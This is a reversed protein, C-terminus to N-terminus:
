KRIKIKITAKKGSGDTAKATITVTKGIGAKKATVVGKSNVTAYKTNSSTWEIKKNAKSGNTKVRAYVTIKKGAKVTKSKAQLTIKTVTHKMIRIKVKARVGSGDAAKATITVTKGAGGKKATVVGKNNVTAYKTNSSSWIIKKNAAKKPGVTAKLTLKKGAALSYKGPTITIKQVNVKRTTDDTKETDESADTDDQTETDGPTETSGSIETNGPTETNGPIETNGPTEANGPTETDKPKEVLASIAVNLNETAADIEDQTANENAAVEKAAVLVGALNKYSEETYDKANVKEAKEIQENLATKDVPAVAPTKDKVMVECVVNYNVGNIQTTGYIQYTGAEDAKIVKNLSADEWEVAEQTVTDDALTVSVTQPLTDKSLESVNEVAVPECSISKVAAADSVYIGNVQLVTIGIWGTGGNALVNIRMHRAETNEPFSDVYPEKAAADVGVAEESHDIVTTWNEGDESIDLTYKLKSWFGTKVNEINVDSGFDIAIAGAKTSSGTTWANNGPNLNMTRANILANKAPRVSNTETVKIGNTDYASTLDKTVTIKKQASIGRSESLATITATGEGVATVVGSNKDVVAVSFDDSTWVVKEEATAPTIEATLTTQKNVNLANDGGSIHIGTIFTNKELGKVANNLNEATKDLTNQKASDWKEEESKKLVSEAQELAEYYAALSEATYYDDTQDKAAKADSIARELVTTDALVEGEVKVTFTGTLPNGAYMTVTLTIEATGAGKATLKGSESDIVAVKTNDSTWTVGAYDSEGDGGTLVPFFQKKDGTDLSVTQGGTGMEYVADGNEDKISFFESANPNNSITVAIEKYISPDKVSSVKVTCKGTVIDELKEYTQVAEITGDQTVTVLGTDTSEWLLDQSASAPAVSAEVNASVGRTGTVPILKVSDKDTKVEVSAVAAPYINFNDMAPNWSLSGGNRRGYFHVAAVDKAYSIGSVFAIEKTATVSEDAKSTLTLTTKEDAMDIVAYVHYWTNTKNFATGFAQTDSLEEGSEMTGRSGYSLVGKSNAQLGFYCHNSSDTVTLYVPGSSVKGVNWDFDVIVKDSKVAKQFKKMLARDGSGGGSIQLFENGDSDEAVAATLTGPTVSKGMNWSDGAERNDFSESVAPVYVKAAAVYGGDATKATITTVGAAVATVQGYADVTAVGPTDSEWTVDTNTATDPLVTAELRVVPANESANKDSFYDSTFYYNELDLTVGSVPIADKQVTVKCSAQYGGNKTTATITVPGGEAVGTVNGNEDVKAISDDSSEWTVEKNDANSPTIITDIKKSSGTQLTLSTKSLAIGEVQVPLVHVTCSGYIEENDDSIARIVADGVGVTSVLGNEDVTAVSTDESKWHLKYKTTNDPKVTAKLQLTRGFGIEAETKDLTVSTVDVKSVNLTFSVKKAGDTTQATIVTSGVAKVNLQVATDTKETEQRMSGKQEQQWTEGLFSAVDTNSSTYIVTQNTVNSGSLVSTLQIKDLVVASKTSNDNVEKGDVKLTLGDAKGAETVKVDVTAKHGGKVSATIKADGASVGYIFGDQTVKAVSPASSTYTINSDSLVKDVPTVTPQLREQEGAALTISDKSITIGAPDTVNVSYTGADKLPTLMDESKNKPCGRMLYAYMSDMMDGVKGDKTSGMEHINVDGNNFMIRCSIDGSAGASSGIGPTPLEDVEWYYFGRTQGYANPTDLAAQMYDLLWNYQGNASTAYYAPQGMSTTATDMTPQYKTFSFATEVNVYDMYRLTQDASIANAMSIINGSSRGGYLSFSMSDFEAGSNLLGKFFTKMQGSDYGNNTHVYAAVGPMADEAAAYSAAILKAHGQSTAGKGVPWVIGGNQENGHKVGCVNVNNDKLSKMFDYVYNYVIAQMHSLDTNKYTNEYDTDLWEEPTYAKANSMWTDSYHFSPLYSMGLATARKGLELSHEKDFWATAEDEPAIMKLELPNGQEDFWLGGWAENLYVTALSDTYHASKGAHVFLMNTISNVGHNSLIRLCDQQVGNAFYKGDLDEVAPLFSVDAGRLYNEDQIRFVDFNDVYAYDSGNGQWDDALKEGASTYITVSDKYAQDYKTNAYVEVETQDDGTEFTITVLGYGETGSPAQRLVTGDTSRVGLNVRDGLEMRTENEGITGFNGSSDKRYTSKVKETQFTDQKDVKARMTVSYRTNPEVSIKQSIESDAGLCLAKDGTDANNGSATEVSGSITWGSEGEEFDWNSLTNEDAADMVLEMTDLDLAKDGAEITVTMQGNYVLVNRHGMETWADAKKYTDLLAVSDPGGTASVTLKANKGATGRVWASLTYSGQSINKITTTISAGAELHVYKGGGQAGSTEEAVTGTTEWGTIGEEFDFNVNELGSVTEASVKVPEPLGALLSVTMMGALLGSIFRRKM